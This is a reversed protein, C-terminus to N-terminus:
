RNGWGLLDVQAVSDWRWQSAKALIINDAGDKDLTMVSFTYLNNPSWWVIDFIFPVKMSFCNFSFDSRYCDRLVTYMTPVHYSFLVYCFRINRSVEHACMCWTSCVFNLVVYLIQLIKNKWLYVVKLIDWGSCSFFSRHFHRVLLILMTLDIDM